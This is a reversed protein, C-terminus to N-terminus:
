GCCSGTAFCSLCFGYNLEFSQGVFGAKTELLVSEPVDVMIPCPYVGGKSVAVGYACQVTELRSRVQENSVVPHVLGAFRGKGYAAIIKLGKIELGFDSKLKERFESELKLQDLSCLDGGSKNVFAIMPRIGFNNLNRIGYLVQDFSGQGRFAEHNTKTYCEMSIRLNLGQGIYGQFMMAMDATILTGNTLITLPLVSELTYYWKLFDSLWPWVLPEGGTIYLAKVGQYMGKLVYSQCEALTLEGLNNTPSCSFLCHKCTLNCRYTAHLWLEKLEKRTVKIPMILEQM